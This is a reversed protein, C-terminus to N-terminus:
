SLERIVGEILARTGQEDLAMGTIRDFVVSYASVQEPKQAYDASWLDETYVVESGLPEPLRLITFTRGMSAHAGARYPLVQVSVHPLEALELVRTLQENMVKENGVLGHLAAEYVVAHLQPPDEGFLRAQRERRITVINDADTSSSTLPHAAAIARIYGETQFLSPVLDIQFDRIRVAESEFGLYARLWEPVRQATRKRAERAIALIRDTEAQDDVGLFSLLGKVEAIPLTMKGMEIKSVTSGTRELYNAVDDRSLGARDRAQRLERGLRLRQVTPGESVPANQWASTL